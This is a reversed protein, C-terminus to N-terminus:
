PGTSIMMKVLLYSLVPLSFRNGSATSNLFGGISISKWQRDIYYFRWATTLFWLASRVRV